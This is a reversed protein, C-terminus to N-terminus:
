PWQSSTVAMHKGTLSTVAAMGDDGGWAGDGFSGLPASAVRGSLSFGSRGMSDHSCFAILRHKDTLCLIGM